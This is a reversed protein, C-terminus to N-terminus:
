KANNKPTRRMIKGDDKAAVYRLSFEKEFKGIIADFTEKLESRPQNTLFNTNVPSVHRIVSANPRGSVLEVTLNGMLFVKNVNGAM